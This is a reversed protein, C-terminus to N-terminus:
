FARIARVYNTSFKGFIFTDSEGDFGFGWANNSDYETSSWYSAYLPLLTAGGISSLAKNINFRNHGMLSLEDLSPLYWDSQGGSVLDLCLKAASTTHGPKSVIANSNTLGNLSSQASAGILTTNINSWTQLNGVLDVKDVILGHEVGANDKWLHFIVGGGFEEGIYHNFSGRSVSDKPLKVFGGNSLFITDNTISLTQLENTASTDESAVPLKVFGGNTLFITDNSLSLAQLENTTSTDKSAAPLKIFGGNTLFITDNNISLTQLENTASTDESASAAPLKVFGGNTLFITDNSISLMQLENTASTDESAAPLKVFGGNTLFITDNSIRLTQYQTNGASKAYLAYPVSLLQTTGMTLFNTGGSADMAVKLYYNDNSWDITNISGSQVAGAGVTLNFLGFQDTDVFHNESFVATGLASTKVITIQIGITTNAIPNNQANRAVASYNFAAPPIQAKVAGTFLLFCLTSLLTIQKM